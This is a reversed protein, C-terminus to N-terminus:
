TGRWVGNGCRAHWTPCPGPTRAGWEISLPLQQATTSWCCSTATPGALHLRRWPWSLQKWDSICRWKQQTGPDGQRNARAFPEGVKRPRTQNSSWTQRPPGSRDAMTCTLRTFGPGDASGSGSEVNNWITGTGESSLTQKKAPSQLPSSSSPNCTNSSDAYRNPPGVGTSVSEGGQPDEQMRERHEGEKFHATLHDHVALRNHVSAWSSWVNPLNWSASRSTSSSHESVVTMHERLIHPQDVMILIDDLYQVIKIGQERLKTMVPHMIKTFVRPSDSIRLPPSHMPKTKLIM